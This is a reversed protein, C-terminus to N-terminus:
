WVECLIEGGVKNKRCTADSLVGQSTSVISIGQGNLVPDIEKFGKHIRLGPKSVRNIKRIANDGERDYKLNITLLKGLELEEVTYDEVFGETKLVQAINEKIKSSPIKVSQHDRLISNRIRTLMDAIPDSMSM